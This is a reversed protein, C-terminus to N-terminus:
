DDKTYRISCTADVAVPLGPAWKVPQGMIEGIARAAEAENSYNDIPTEVVHEDHVTLVTSFGAKDLRVLSEMAVDRAMAQVCNQFLFGGYAKTKWFQKSVPDIYKFTAQFKPKGWPTDIEELEPYWYTLYGGSPLFLRMRDSYRKYYVRPEIVHDGILHIGTSPNTLREDGPRTCVWHEEGIPGKMCELAARNFCYWGV